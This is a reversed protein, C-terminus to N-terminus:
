CDYKVVYVGWPLEVLVNPLNGISSSRTMRPWVGSVEYKDKDEVHLDRREKRM